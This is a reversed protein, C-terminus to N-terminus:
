WKPVSKNLPQIPSSQSTQDGAGLFCINHVLQVKELRGPYENAIESMSKKTKLLNWSFDVQDWCSTGRHTKMIQEQNIWFNLGVQFKKRLDSIKEMKNHPSLEDPNMLEETIVDASHKGGSGFCLLLSGSTRPCWPDDSAGPAPLPGFCPPIQSTWLPPPSTSTPMSPPQSPCASCPSSFQRAPSTLTLVVAEYAKIPLRRMPTRSSCLSQMWSLVGEDELTINISCYDPLYLSHLNHVGLVQFWKWTTM